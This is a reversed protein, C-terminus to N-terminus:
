SRTWWLRRRGQGEQGQWRVCQDRWFAEWLSAQARATDSDSRVPEILRQRLRDFVYWAGTARDQLATFRPLPHMAPGQGVVARPPAVMLTVHIAGAESYVRPLASAVLERM